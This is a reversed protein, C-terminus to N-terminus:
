ELPLVLGPDDAVSRLATVTPHGAALLAVDTGEEVEGEAVVSVLELGGGDLQRVRAQVTGAEALRARRLPRLRAEPVNPVNVNLVTGPPTDALMPLVEDAVRVASPWHLEGPEPLGVDLSVALARIGNIGATLAAGVTGSHLVARGVNAGRNIGSLLVDPRGNFAGKAAVLAILGPHGVVAYAPVDPLGDLTRRRVAVRRKDEAATLGASTGSSETNPAAVVTVLGRDRTVGALATIGPSLIGDDNTVLATRVTM